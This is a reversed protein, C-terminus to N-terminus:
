IVSKEMISGDIKLYSDRKIRFCELVMLYLFDKISELIRLIRPKMGNM